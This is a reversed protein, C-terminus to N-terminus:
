SFYAFGHVLRQGGALRGGSHLGFKNCLGIRHLGVRMSQTIIM